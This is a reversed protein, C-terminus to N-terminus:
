HCAGSQAPDCFFSAMPIQQHFFTRKTQTMHINLWLKPKAYGQSSYCSVRFGAELLTGPVDPKTWAVSLIVKSNRLVDPPDITNDPQM